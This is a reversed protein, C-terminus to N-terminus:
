FGHVAKLLSLTEEIDYPGGSPQIGFILISKKTSKALISGVFGEKRQGSGDELEGILYPMKEGAIEAEGRVRPAKFHASSPLGAAPLNIGMDYAQKLLDKAEGESSRQEAALTIEQKDPKHEITIINVPGVKIGFVFVFGSPLPEPFNAVEKAVKAIQLPDLSRVTMQKTFLILGIGGLYLILYLALVFVILAAAWSPLRRDNSRSSDSM